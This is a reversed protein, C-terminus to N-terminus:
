YCTKFASILMCSKLRIVAFTLPKFLSPRFNNCPTRPSPALSQTSFATLSARGSKTKLVRQIEDYNKEYGSQLENAFDSNETTAVGKSTLVRDIARQNKQLGDEIGSLKTDIRSDLAQKLNILEQGLDINGM